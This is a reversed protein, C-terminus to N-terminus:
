TIPRRMLSTATSLKQISGDAVRYATQCLRPIVLRWPSLNTLQMSLSGTSVYSCGGWYCCQMVFGPVSAACFVSLITAIGVSPPVPACYPYIHLHHLLFRFSCPRGNDPLSPAALLARKLSLVYISISQRIAHNPRVMLAIISIRDFCRNLRSLILMQIAMAGAKLAYGHVYFPTQQDLRGVHIISMGHWCNRRMKSAVM